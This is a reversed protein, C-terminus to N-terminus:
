HSQRGETAAGEGGQDDARGRRGELYRVGEVEQLEKLVAGLTQANDALKKEREKIVGKLKATEAKLDEM